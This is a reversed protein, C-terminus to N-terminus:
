KQRRRTKGGKKSKKKQKTTEGKAEREAKKAARKAHWAAKRAREEEEEEEAAKVVEAMADKFAKEDAESPKEGYIEKKHMAAAIDKAKESAIERKTLPRVDRSHMRTYPM